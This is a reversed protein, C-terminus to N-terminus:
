GTFRNIKSFFQLRYGQSFASIPSSYLNHTLCVMQFLESQAVSHLKEKELKSALYFQLRYGQDPATSCSYYSSLLSNASM